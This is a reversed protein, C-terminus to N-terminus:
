SSLSDVDCCLVDLPSTFTSVLRKRYLSNELFRLYVARVNKRSYLLSRNDLLITIGSFYAICCLQLRIQSLNSGGERKYVARRIIEQFPLTVTGVPASSPSDTLKKDKFWEVKASCRLRQLRM